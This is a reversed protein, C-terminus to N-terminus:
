HVYDGSSFSHSITWGSEVLAVVADLHTEVAILLSPWPQTPEDAKAGAKGVILDGSKPDIRLTLAGSLFDRV